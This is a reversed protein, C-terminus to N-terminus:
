MEAIVHEIQLRQSTICLRKFPYGACSSRSFTSVSACFTCPANCLAPLRDSGSGSGFGFGCGCIQTITKTSATSASQRCVTRASGRCSAAAVTHESSGDRGGAASDTGRAGRARGGRRPSTQSARRCTETTTFVFGMCMIDNKRSDSLSVESILSSAARRVTQAASRSDIRSTFCSPGLRGSWPTTRRVQTCARFPACLRCAMTRLSRTLPKLTPFYFLFFLVRVCFFTKRAHCFIYM